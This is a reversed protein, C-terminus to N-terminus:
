RTSGLLVRQSAAVWFLDGNDCRISFTTHCITADVLSPPNQRQESLSVTSTGNPSASSINAIVLEDNLPSTPDGKPLKLRFGYESGPRPTGACCNVAQCQCPTDM